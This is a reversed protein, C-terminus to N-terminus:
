DDGQYPSVGRVTGSTSFEQALAFAKPLDEAVVSFSGGGEARLDWNGVESLYALDPYVHLAVWGTEERRDDIRFLLQSYMM